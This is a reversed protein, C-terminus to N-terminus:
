TIVGRKGAFARAKAVAQAVTAGGPDSDPNVPVYLVTGERRALVNSAVLARMVWIAVRVSPCEVGLWGGYSRGAQAFGAERGIFEIMAPPIESADAAAPEILPWAVDLEELLDAIELQQVRPVHGLWYHCTKATVTIVNKIEKELRFHPGAPLDLATDERRAWVNEMVVARLLWAAMEPNRCTLRVWGHHPSAAAPLGTVLTIGRCIEAVVEAHREPAAAIAPGSAPELLTGKHPPGGAMALDCFSGWMEDWAVQGHAAYKLPASGMSVPQVDENSNRYNEPLLTRLRYELAALERDDVVIAM